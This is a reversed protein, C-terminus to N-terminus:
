AAPELLSADDNEPSNVRTSVSWMAMAEAPFPVLLDNPDPERGLWTQRWASMSSIGVTRLWAFLENHM